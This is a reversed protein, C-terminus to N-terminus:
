FELTYSLREYCEPRQPRYIFKKVNFSHCFEKTARRRLSLSMFTPSYCTDKKLAASLEMSALTGYLSNQMITKSPSSACDLLMERICEEDFVFISEMEPNVSCAYRVAHQRPLLLEIQHVYM